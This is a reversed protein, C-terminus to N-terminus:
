GSVEEYLQEVTAATVTVDHRREVFSRGEARRKAREDDSEGAIEVIAAALADVDEEEVLEEPRAAVFPIDAHRTAVIPVGIAQMELLVTPAGGETDGDSATRSPQVCVNARASLAQYETYSVMGHFRVADEVGLDSVLAELSSKLAGDGILWLEADGLAARAAAFARITLDVGKKEEFRAAQLVVFTGEKRAPGLELERLDIGIPVVRLRAGDCGVRKAHAEMAPGEVIFLTGDAFL